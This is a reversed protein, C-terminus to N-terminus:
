TEKIWIGHRWIMLKRKIIYERTRMGKVDEVVLDGNEEYTFDAIYFVARETKEGTKKLPPILEFRVQCQLNKILGAKELLKLECYRDAERNSDFRIGDIITKHAHYKSGKKLNSWAM